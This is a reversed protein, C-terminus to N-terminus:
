VFEILTHNSFFLGGGFSVKLAKASSVNARQYWRSMSRVAIVMEGSCVALDPSCIPKVGIFSVTGIVDMSQSLDNVALLEL